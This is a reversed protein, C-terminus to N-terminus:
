EAPEKALLEAALERGAKTISYGAGAMEGDGTWLGKGYVALGKRALARVTRRIHQLEVGTRHSLAAFNFYSEDEYSDAMSVLLVRERESVKTSM